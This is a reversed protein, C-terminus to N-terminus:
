RDDTVVAACEPHRKLFKGITQTLLAREEGALAELRASSDPNFIFAYGPHEDCFIQMCRLSDLAQQIANLLDALYEREEDTQLLTPLHLSLQMAFAIMTPDHTHFGALVSLGAHDRGYRFASTRALLSLGELLLRGRGAARAFDADTASAIAAGPHDLDIVGSRSILRISEIM